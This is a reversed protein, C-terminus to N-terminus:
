GMERALRALRQAEAYVRQCRAYTWVGALGIDLLYDDGYRAEDPPAGFAEDHYELIWLAPGRGAERDLFVPLLSTCVGCKPDPLEGEVLEAVAVPNAVALRRVADRLYPDEYRM